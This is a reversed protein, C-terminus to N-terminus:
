FVLIPSPNPLTLSRRNQTTTLKRYGSKWQAKYAQFFRSRPASCHAALPTSSLPSYDDSSGLPSAYAFDEVAFLFKVRPM